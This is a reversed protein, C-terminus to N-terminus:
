VAADDGVRKMARGIQDFEEASSGVLEVAVASRSPREAKPCPRSQTNRRPSLRDLGPRRRACYRFAGRLRDRLGILDAELGARVSDIAAAPVSNTVATKLGNTTVTLSLARENWAPRSPSAQASLPILRPRAV